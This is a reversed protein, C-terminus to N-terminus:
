PKKCNKALSLGRGEAETETAFFVRNEPKIRDLGPCNQYYYRTGSKSAVIYFGQSSTKDTKITIDEIDSSKNIVIQSNSHNYRIELSIVQYILLGFSMSLGIGM